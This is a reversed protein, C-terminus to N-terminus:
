PRRRTMLRLRATPAILGAPDAALDELVTAAETVNADLLHSAAAFRVEPDADVLLPKLLEVERGESTWERVIADGKETEENAGDTDGSQVCVWYALAADRFRTRATALDRM